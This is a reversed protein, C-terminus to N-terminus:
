IKQNQVFYWNIMYAVYHSFMDKPTQSWALSLGAQKAEAALLLRSIKPIFDTPVIKDLSLIIFISILSHQHVPQDPNKNNAYPM